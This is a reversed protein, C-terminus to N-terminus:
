KELWEPRKARTYTLLNAKEVKYYHRYAEVTDTHQESIYDPMARAFETLGIAPLSDFLKEIDISLIADYSKHNGSHNYRYQWEENLHRALSTLWCINNLSARAWVTCPHNYHTTKYPTEIGLENAVSCVIQASELIMKVVHKDVHYKACKKVDMDLLFINMGSIYYFVGVM